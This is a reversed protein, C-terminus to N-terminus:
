RLITNYTCSLMINSVQNMLPISSVHHSSLGYCLCTGCGQNWQIIFAFIIPGPQTAWNSSCEALIGLNYAWNWDPCMFSDVLSHMFLHFLLNIIKERLDMFFYFVFLIIFILFLARAPIAWHISYRGIFWLLRRNSEWDPCMSPNHALNGTLPM